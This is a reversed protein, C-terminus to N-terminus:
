EAADGKVSLMTLDHSFDVKHRRKNYKRIFSIHNKFTLFLIHKVENDNLLKSIIHSALNM